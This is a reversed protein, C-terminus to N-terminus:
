RVQVGKKDINLILAKSKVRARKFANVMARGVRAANSAKTFAIISPGAGSLATGYAGAKEAAAKVAYFGPILKSRYPEHLRDALAGKLLEFEGGLARHLMTVAAINAVADKMPVSKPLVARAKKTSLEFAPIAV